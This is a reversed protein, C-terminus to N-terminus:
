VDLLGKNKLAIIIRDAVKNYKFPEDSDKYHEKVMVDFIINWARELNDDHKEEM